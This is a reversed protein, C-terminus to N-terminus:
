ELPYNLIMFLCAASFQSLKVLVLAIASRTDFVFDRMFVAITSSVLKIAESRILVRNHLCSYRLSSFSPGGTALRLRRPQVYSSTTHITGILGVITGWYAQRPNPPTFQMTIGELSWEDASHSACIIQSSRCLSSFYMPGGRVPLVSTVQGDKDLAFSEFFLAGRLPLLQRNVLLIFSADASPSSLVLAESFNSLVTTWMDWRLDKASQPIAEIRCPQPARAQLGLYIYM